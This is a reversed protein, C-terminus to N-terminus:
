KTFKIVEVPCAEAAEIIRLGDTLPADPRIICTADQVEFVEPIITECADCVICGPEIWVKSVNFNEQAVTEGGSTTFAESFEPNVAIKLKKGGQAPLPDSVFSRKVTPYFVKEAKHGYKDEFTEVTDESESLQKLFKDVSMDYQHNIGESSSSLEVMIRAKVKKPYSISDFLSKLKPGFDLDIAFASNKKSFSRIMELQQPSGFPNYFAIKITDFSTPEKDTNWRLGFSFGSKGKRSKLLSLKPKGFFFEFSGTLFNLGVVTVVLGAALVVAISM